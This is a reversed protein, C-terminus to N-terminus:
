ILLTSWKGRNADVASTPGGCISAQRIAMKLVDRPCTVGDENESLGLSADLVSYHLTSGVLRALSRRGSGPVGILLAHSDCGLRLSRSLSLLQDLLSDFLVLRFPSGTSLSNLRQLDNQFSEAVQKRDNVSQYITPTGIGMFVHNLQGLPNLHNNYLGELLKLHDEDKSSREFEGWVIKSLFHKVGGNDVLHEIVNKAIIEFLKFKETPHSLSTGYERVIEHLLFAALKEPDNFSSQDLILLHQVGLM